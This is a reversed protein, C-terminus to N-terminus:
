YHETSETYNIIAGHKVTIKTRDVETIGNGDWGLGSILDLTGSFVTAEPINTILGSQM